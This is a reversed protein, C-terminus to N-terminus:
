NESLKTINWVERRKHSYFIWVCFCSYFISEFRQGKRKHKYAVIRELFFVIECKTSNATIHFKNYISINPERYLIFCRHLKMTKGPNPKARASRIQPNLKSPPVPFCNFALKSYWRRIVPPNWKAASQTCRICQVTQTRHLNCPNM